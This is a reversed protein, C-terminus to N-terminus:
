YSVLARAAHGEGLGEGALDDDPIVFGSGSYRRSRNMM